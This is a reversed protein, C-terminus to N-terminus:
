IAGFWFSAQLTGSWVVANGNDGAAFGIGPVAYVGLRFDSGGEVGIRAIAGITVFADSDWVAFDLSGGPQVVGHFDGFAPADVVTFAVNAGLFLHDTDAFLQAFTDLAHIQIIISDSPYLDVSPLWSSQWGLGLDFPDDAVNMGFDPGTHVTTGIGFAQADATVLSLLLSFM